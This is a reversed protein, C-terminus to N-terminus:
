AVYDNLIIDLTLKVTKKPLPDFKEAQKIKQLIYKMHSEISNVKEIKIVNYEEQIKSRNNYLWDLPALKAEVKKDNRTYIAYQLM